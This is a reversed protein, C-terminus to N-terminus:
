LGVNTTSVAEHAPEREGGDRVIEQNQTKTRHQGVKCPQHYTLYVATGFQASHRVEYQCPIATKQHARAVKLDDDEQSFHAGATKKAEDEGQAM